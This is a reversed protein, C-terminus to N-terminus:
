IEGCTTRAAGPMAKVRWEIYLLNFFQMVVEFTRFIGDYTKTLKNAKNSAQRGYRRLAASILTL